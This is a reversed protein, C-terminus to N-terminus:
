AGSSSGGAGPLKATITMTHGRMGFEHRVSDMQYLQDFYGTGSLQLGMAVNISPDGAVEATLRLADRAHERAKSQAFQNVHDQEYNPAHYTYNTTGGVSGTMTGSGVFVQKKKPHWAKVNVNITKSAQVNRRIRLQLFDAVMPNDPTPPVYNLTYIGQPNALSQYFLTGNSVWWRAGDIEAIKHIVSALSVGDTVKAYDIQVQKGALVISPDVQASLGVRGALQSVISSGPQNTWKEASKTAHLMASQDRGTIHIQTGVLDTDATDIEGTLLTATVGRTSVIISSTNQGLTAFTALAGPYSMPLKASFTSSKKTANQDASGEKIPFTAGNVSLWAFHPGAGTSIAM